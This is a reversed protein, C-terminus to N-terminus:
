SIVTINIITLHTKQNISGCIIIIPDLLGKHKIDSVEM